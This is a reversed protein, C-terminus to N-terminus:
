GVDAPVPGRAARFVWRSYLLWNFVMGAAIGAVKGLLPHLGPAVGSGALLAIAAAIVAPQVVWLGFGTGLLFAVAQRRLGSGGRQRFTFARNATFSFALGCSTSVLNALLLPSGAAQLALFLVLDIATNVSGVLGFRVLAPDLRSRM